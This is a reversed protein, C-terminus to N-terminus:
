AAEAQPASRTSFALHWDERTQGDVTLRWEYRGGPPIEQPPLNIAAHADIPTGPKIGPAPTVQFTGEIVLPRAGEPTDVAVPQGDADILDLRFAHDTNIGHWPVKIDLVIAFPVPQPGTVSWGGGCIFLKGGVAQAHDALMLTVKMTVVKGKEDGPEPGPGLRV